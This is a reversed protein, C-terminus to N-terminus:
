AFKPQQLNSSWTSSGSDNWFRDLALYGVAASLGISSAILMARPGKTSKFMLGAIGGAAVSNYNDETGRTKEIVTKTLGYTLAVVGLSNALFPGRRTMGNLVANYRLKASGEGYRMGEYLGWGGGILIGSLYSTGISSFMKEGWGRKKQNDAPFVFQAGGDDSMYLSPDINLYPTLSANPAFGPNYSSAGGSYYDTDAYSM